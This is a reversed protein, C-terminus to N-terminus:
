LNVPVGIQCQRPRLCRTSDSAAAMRRDRKDDALMELDRACYEARRLGSARYGELVKM